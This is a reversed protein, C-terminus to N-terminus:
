MTCFLYHLLRTHANRWHHCLLFTQWCVVCIMLAESENVRFLFCDSLVSGHPLTFTLSHCCFAPTHKPFPPTLIARQQHLGCNRELLQRAHTQRYRDASVGQPLLWGAQEPPHPRLQRQSASRRREHESRVGAGGAQPGPGGESCLCVPVWWCSTVSLQTCVCMQSNWLLAFSSHHCVTPFMDFYCFYNNKLIWLYFWIYNKYDSICTFIWSQEYLCM